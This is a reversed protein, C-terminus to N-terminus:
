GKGFRSFLDRSEIAFLIEWGRDFKYGIGFFKDDNRRNGSEFRGHLKCFKIDVVVNQEEARVLLIPIGAPFDFIM